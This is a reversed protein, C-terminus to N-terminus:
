KTLQNPEIGLKKKTLAKEDGALVPKKVRNDLLKSKLNHLAVLQSYFSHCSAWTISCGALTKSIAQKTQAECSQIQSYPLPDRDV